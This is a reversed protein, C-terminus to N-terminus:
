CVGDGAGEPDGGVGPSAVGHALGTVWAAPAGAALMTGLAAATASDSWRLLWGARGAAASRGRRPSPPSRM